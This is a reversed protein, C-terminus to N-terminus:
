LKGYAANEAAIELIEDRHPNDDDVFNEYEMPGNAPALKWSKEFHSQSSLEDPTKSVCFAIADVLCEKDSESLADLSPGLRGSQLEPHAKTRDIRIKDEFGDPRNTWRWDEELYDKVTSPVPGMPMAIYTDGIVPRGYRNLHWKEAYYLVESVYLPSLGPQREALFALTELTKRESLAFKLVSTGAATAKFTSGWIPNGSVNQRSMVDVSGM